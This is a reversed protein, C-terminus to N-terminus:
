FNSCACYRGDYFVFPISIKENKIKKPLTLFERRLTEGEQAESLLTNKILFLTRLVKSAPLGSKANVQRRKVSDEKGSKNTDEM